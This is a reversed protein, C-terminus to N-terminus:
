LLEEMYTNSIMGLLYLQYDSNAIWCLNHYHLYWLQVIVEGEVKQWYSWHCPDLDGNNVTCCDENLPVWCLQPVPFFYRGVGNVVANNPPWNHYDIDPPTLSCNCDTAQIWTFPICELNSHCCGDITLKNISLLGLGRQDDLQRTLRTLNYQTLTCHFTTKYAIHDVTNIYSSCIYINHLIIIM